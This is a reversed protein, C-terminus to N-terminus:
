QRMVTIQRIGRLHRREAATVLRHALYLEPLPESTALDVRWTGGLTASLHRAQGGAGRVMGPPSTLRDAGAATSASSLNTARRLDGRNPGM